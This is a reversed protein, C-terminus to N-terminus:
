KVSVLKKIDIEKNDLNSAIGNVHGAGVVVVICNAEVMQLQYAIYQDREDVLVEKLKKQKEMLLQIVKDVEESTEESEEVGKLLNNINVKKADEKSMRGFLLKLKDKFTLKKMLRELTININRDALLIKAGVMKASEVAQIMEEGPSINFDSAIKKQYKSLIFQLLFLFPKKTKFIQSLKPKVKDKNMLGLFRNRDLEIAVIEPKEAEIVEKVQEKSKKSIHATGILVIKKGDKEITKIM